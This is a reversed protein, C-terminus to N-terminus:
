FLKEFKNKNAFFSDKELKYYYNLEDEKTLQPKFKNHYSIVSKNKKRVEFNLTNYGLVEFVYTKLIIDVKIVNLAIKYFPKSVFSGVEISDNNKNYLRYTAFKEDNEDIAIYYFEEEDKERNKYERIWKKQEEIDSNTSSIFKSKISDTRIDIIFEADSEQVLRLKINFKNITDM